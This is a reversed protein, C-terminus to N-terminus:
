SAHKRPAACGDLSACAGGLSASSRADASRRQRADINGSVREQITELVQRATSRIVGVEDPYANALAISFNKAQQLTIHPPLPPVEPDTKVELVVPVDSAHARQWASRLMEPEDIYIGRLGIMDAFRSYCVSPIQQSAEFRPDGDIIRQEWTVQNVDENNNFVCVIWRHDPWGRWYKAVTILEAMNNMQM